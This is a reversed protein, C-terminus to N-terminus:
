RSAPKASLHPTVLSELDRGDALDLLLQKVRERESESFPSIGALELFWLGETALLPIAAQQLGLQETVARFRQKHLVHNDEKEWLGSTMIKASVADLKSRNELGSIIWSKLDRSPGDPLAALTDMRARHYRERVSQRIALNLADRNPFYHLVGSKSLSSREALREFTVAEIGSELIIEIAIDLLTDRQSAEVSLGPAMAPGAKEAADDPGKMM